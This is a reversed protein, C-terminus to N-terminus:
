AGKCRSSPLAWRRALWWCELAHIKKFNGAIRKEGSKKEASALGKNFGQNDTSLKYVASGLIAM